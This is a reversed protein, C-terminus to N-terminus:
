TGKARTGARDPDAQAAISRERALLDSSADHHPGDARLAKRRRKEHGVTGFIISVDPGSPSVLSAPREDM